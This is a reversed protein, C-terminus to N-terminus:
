TLILRNRQLKKKTINSDKNVESNFVTLQKIASMM